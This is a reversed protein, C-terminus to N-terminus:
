SYKINELLDTYMKLNKDKDKDKDNSNSDYEVPNYQIILIDVGSSMFRRYQKICDDMSGAIALESLMRDSVHAHLDKLGNSAYSSKISYVEDKFGKSALFNAYIPGVATYFALTSKARNIARLADDAVATVVVYCVTCSPNISKIMAVTDKLEELPRLFLIVGDGIRSALNLMGRNTAAIYIPVSRLPKFGLRMDKIRVISGTYNVKEGKCVLRIAEVYERMRKINMNFISSHWEEALKKSSAGLGLIARGNSLADLTAIAMAISAASRSYISVICTGLMARSTVSAIYGLTTFADRGWSEPIWISHIGLRDAAKAYDIVQTTNLLMGLSVGIMMIM